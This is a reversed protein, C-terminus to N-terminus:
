RIRIEIVGSWSGGPAPRVDRGNVTMELSRGGPATMRATPDLRLVSLHCTGTPTWHSGPGVTLLLGNNVVASPTNTVVGLEQYRTRDITSVRHRTTTASVAGTLRSRTLSVSLNQGPLRGAGGRMGNFVDGTLEIEHFEAVADTPHAVATDFDKMREPAGAPERYVAEAIGWGDMRPPCPDDDDMLQLLVGNGPLLRAGDAGDVSLRAPQGKVLFATGGTRLVTGGDVRVSGPGHWLVGFRRSRLTSGRPALDALEGDRLGLKWDTNLRRVAQRTSGGYHLTGGRNIGIYGTVDFDCGLFVQAINDVAYSGYGDGTVKVRSNVAGLRCGDGSTESSLAGWSESSLTSALYVATSGPGALNTARVNGSLGLVWPATRMFRPNVNPVYGDPLTGDYTHLRSNKMVFTAGELAVVATRMVGRCTIRGGDVVLRGRTGSVTLAAGYGVFDSRGNGTLEIHPDRLLYTGDVVHVGNFAEGSSIVTLGDAAATGVRGGSRAAAVSRAADPGDAGVFLAQRLPFALGKFHVMHPDCVTIVVDGRYAGPAIRVTDAPTLAAGTETGNVTLTLAKGAPAALTGGPEVTLSYLRTTRAVVVTSGSRVTLSPVPPVAARHAPRAPTTAPLLLAGGLAAGLGLFRRRAPRLDSAPPPADPAM